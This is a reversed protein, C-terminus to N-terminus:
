QDYRKTRLSASYNPKSPYPLEGIEDLFLTGGHAEVFLGKKDHRADTFAGRVYGFLKSELLQEPIAACSIAVFPAQKRV